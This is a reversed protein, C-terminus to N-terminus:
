QGKGCYDDLSSPFLPSFPRPYLPDGRERLQSKKKRSKKKKWRFLFLRCASETRLRVTHLGRSVSLLCIENAIPGHSTCVACDVLPNHECDSWTVDMCLLRCVFETRLRVMHHGWMAPLFLVRVMHCEAFVLAAQLIKLLKGPLLWAPCAPCLLRLGRLFKREIELAM